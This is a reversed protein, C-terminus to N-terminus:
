TTSTSIKSFGHSLTSAKDLDYKSSDCPVRWAYWMSGLNNGHHYVNPLTIEHLYIYRLRANVPSFNNLFVPNGYEGSQLLREELSQLCPKQIVAGAIFKRNSSTGDLVSHCPFSSKHNKEDKEELYMIYKHCNESLLHLFDKFEKWRTAQLTPLTM